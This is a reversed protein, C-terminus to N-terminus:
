DAYIRCIADVKSTKGDFGQLYKQEEGYTGCVRGGKLRRSKM